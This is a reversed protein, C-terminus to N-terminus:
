DEYEMYCDFCKSGHIEDEEFFHGCTTCCELTESCNWCVMGYSYYNEGKKKKCILCVEVTDLDSSTIRFESEIENLKLPTEGVKLDIIIDLELNSKINENVLITALIEGTLHIQYEKDKPSYNLNSKSIESINIAKIEEIEIFEIEIEIDKQKIYEDILVAIKDELQNKITEYIEGTQNDIDDLIYNLIDRDKELLINNKIFDDLNCYTLDSTPSNEKFEQILEIRLKKDKIWDEKIENTVFLIKKSKEKTLRLIDKWIILDGFININNKGIDEYGPPIKYKYRIEGENIIAILESTIFKKSKQVNPISIIFKEIENKIHYDRNNEKEIASEEIHSEIEQSIKEKIDEVMHIIKDEIFDIDYGKKKYEFRIKSFESEIKSLKTTTGLLDAKLTNYNSIAKKKIPQSKLNREFEELVQFSLWIKDKHENLGTLISEIMKYDYEYLTLLVNTDFIVHDYNELFM